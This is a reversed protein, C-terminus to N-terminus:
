VRSTPTGTTILISTAESAVVTVDLVGNITRIGDGLDADGSVNIQCTGLPGRTVAVATLGDDSVQLDLVSPDSVSWAPVGDIAAPNQAATVPEFRLDVQQIDTLIQM